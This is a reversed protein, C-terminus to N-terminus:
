EKPLEISFISGKNEASEFWVKGDMLEVLKKVISLGIGSSEEKNLGRRSAPTNKEFLQEQLKDPIGIGNDRVRVIFTAMTEEVIIDIEGNDHTFKISNSVLNHIVQFFKVSDTSINLNKLDTIIRFKKNKNTAIIKELTNIIRELLDFRSKKVFIRESELHEEKLFDNVIDLCEQTNQKIIQLQADIEVPANDRYTDQMWRIINQSLNLPGALNHTMMDLLTDKKAGYNMIYDEHEKEKTLDKVFGIVVQDDTLLHADCSLHRIGGDAFMMRFENGTISKELLLDTYRHRLHFADESRIFPLVLRPQRTLEERNADFFSAFNANIYIFKENKIDYVFVGDKSLEGIRQIDNYV